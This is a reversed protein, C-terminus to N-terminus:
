IKAVPPPCIDVQRTSVGQTTKQLLHLFSEIFRTILEQSGVGFVLCNIYSKILSYSDYNLKPDSKEKDSAPPM